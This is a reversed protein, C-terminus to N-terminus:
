LRIHSDVFDRIYTGRLVASMETIRKSDETDGIINLIYAAAVDVVLEPVLETIWNSQADDAGDLAFPTPSTYYGLAFESTLQEHKIHLTSGSVYAIPIIGKCDTQILMAADILDIPKEDTNSSKVYFFKRQATTIPIAQVLATDDVGDGTGVTTEEQDRWYHGSKSIFNIAANIRRRILLDKDPQPVIELVEAYIEALTSM